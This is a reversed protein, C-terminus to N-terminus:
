QHIQFDNSVGALTTIFNTKYTQIAQEALNRRHIDAPTKEVEQQRGDQMSKNTAKTLDKATRSKLPDADIYNSDLEVAVM